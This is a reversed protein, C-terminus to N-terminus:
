KEPNSFSIKVIEEEYDFSFYLSINRYFNDLSANVARQSTLLSPNLEELTNGLIIKQTGSFSFRSLFSEYTMLDKNIFLDYAIKYENENLLESFLDLFDVVNFWIDEMKDRRDKFTLHEAEPLRRGMHDFVKYFDVTYDMEKIMEQVIEEYRETYHDLKDIEIQVRENTREELIEEIKRETEVEVEREIIKEVTVTEIELPQLSHRYNTIKYTLHIVAFIILIAIFVNRKNVEIFIVREENKEEKEEYNM